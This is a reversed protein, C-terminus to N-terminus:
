GSVESSRPRRKLRGSGDGRWGSPHRAQSEESRWEPEESRWEPEESRREAAQRAGLQASRRGAPRRAELEERRRGTPHRNSFEELRQATRAVEAVIEVYRERGAKAGFVYGAAFVVLGTIKV